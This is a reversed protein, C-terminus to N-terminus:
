RAIISESRNMETSISNDAIDIILELITDGFHPGTHVPM